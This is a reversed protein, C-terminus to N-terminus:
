RHTWNIEYIHDPDGRHMCKTEEISISFKPLIFEMLRLIYGELYRCFVPLIKFDSIQVVVYKDEENFAPVSLSGIDYHRSWTLPAEYMATKTSVLLKMMIRITFSFKPATNGMQWFDADQWHFMDQLLRFSLVRQNLPYWEMARITKYEIPYGCEKLRKKLQGFKAQGLIRQIYAADTQFVTGRVNGKIQAISSCDEDTIV